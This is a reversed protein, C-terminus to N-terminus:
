HPCKINKFVAPNNEMFDDLEKRKFIWCGAYFQIRPKSKELIKSNIIAQAKTAGCRIYNALGKVGRITQEDVGTEKASDDPANYSLDDCTEFKNCSTEVSIHKDTISTLFKCADEFYRRQLSVMGSMFRAENISQLLSPTPSAAYDREMSMINSENPIDYHYDHNENFDKNVTNIVTQFTATGSLELIATKFEAMMRDLKARYADEGQIYPIGNYAFADTPVKKLPYYECRLLEQLFDYIPKTSM